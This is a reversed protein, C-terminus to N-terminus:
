ESGKRTSFIELFDCMKSVKGKTKKGGGSAEMLSQFIYTDKVEKSLFTQTKVKM